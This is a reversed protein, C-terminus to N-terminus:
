LSTIYIKSCDTVKEGIETQDGQPLISIDPYLSCAGVVKDYFIEDSHSGFIINGKVSNNQVWPQQSVYAIRGYVGIRGRIREM